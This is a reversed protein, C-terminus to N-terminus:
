LLHGLASSFYCKLLLFGKMQSNHNDRHNLEKLSLEYPICNNKIDIDEFGKISRNNFTYLRHDLIIKETPYGMNLLLGLEDFSAAIVGDANDDIKLSSVYEERNVLEDDPQCIAYWYWMLNVINIGDPDLPFIPHSISSWFRYIKKPLTWM